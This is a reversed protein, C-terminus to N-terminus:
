ASKRKELEDDLAKQLKLLSEYGLGDLLKVRAERDGVVWRPGYKAFLRYSTWGVACGALFALAITM